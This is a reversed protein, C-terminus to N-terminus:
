IRVSWGEPGEIRGYQIGMLDKFVRRTLDGTAPIDIDEGKYQICSIPTVVAATGAGFAELLRNEHAAERIEPLTITRESVEFENWTQALEIISQRTVGPLIDGRTLPPTVLEKTGDTKRLLFFVNMAGVETVEDNPGFIWLIQDYGRKAAEDAALMTPAYNGGVKANGTGGPWARVYETDTTLRVPAFGSKYYPGVPSTIVYLLLSSPTTVGLYPHTSIVTPRIYLSYGEGTPIWDQDVRVLESICEILEKRDFDYGPKSLRHMSNSLRKMNLEPRFLRLDSPDSVSKYAKMGEFCQLGYHLSSAAPSLKLDEFKGIKPAQWGGKDSLYEITLMHDSFVRGFQLQEKPPMKSPNSALRQSPPLLSTQLSSSNICRAATKVTASSALRALQVPRCAPSLVM